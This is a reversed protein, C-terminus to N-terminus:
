GLLLNVLARFPTLLRLPHEFGGLLKLVGQWFELEHGQRGPVM